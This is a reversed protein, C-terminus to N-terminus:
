AAHIPSQRRYHLTRARDTASPQTTSRLPYILHIEEICTVKVGDEVIEAEFRIPSRYRDGAEYYQDRQCRGLPMHLHALASAGDVNLSFHNRSFGRVVIDQQSKSNASGSHPEDQM